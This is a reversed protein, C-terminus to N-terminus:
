GIWKWGSSTEKVLGFGQLNELQNSVLKVSESDKPDVSLERLIENGNVIRGPRLIAVLEESYRRMGEFEKPESFAKHKLKFLETEYKELVLTKLKLEERQKRNEERLQALEKVMEYRPTGTEGALSAEVTEYVFRSLPVHKDEAIKEWRIKDEKSPFYINCYREALEPKVMRFWRQIM